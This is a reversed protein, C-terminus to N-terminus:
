HQGKAPKRSRIKFRGWRHIFFVLFAAGSLTTGLYIKKLHKKMFNQKEDKDKSKDSDNSNKDTFNQATDANRDKFREDNSITSSETSYLCKRSSIHCRNVANHRSIKCAEVNSYFQIGTLSYIQKLNRLRCMPILAAM